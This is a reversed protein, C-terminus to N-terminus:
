NRLKKLDELISEENFTKTELLKLIQRYENFLYDRVAEQMAAISTNVKKTVQSVLRYLNKEVENPIKKQFFRGFFKKWFFMPFLWWLLDINSDFTWSVAIDPEKIEPPTIQWLFEPLAQHLVPEIRQNIRERFLLVQREFHKQPLGILNDIEKQADSFNEKLVLNLTEQLWQEFQRTCKYLNGKWQGYEESFKQTIIKILQERKPEIMIKTLQERTHTKYEKAIIGLEQHIQQLFEKESNLEKKLQEIVAQEQRKSELLLLLYSQLTANLKVEKYAILENINKQKKTLLPFFLQESITNLYSVTNEKTSFFYLPFERNFEQKSVERLYSTMEKKEIDSLLDVKTLLLFIKDTYTLIERLNQIDQASFPQQPNIAYIVFASEPTWKMTTETNQKFFSGTGPTDILEVEKLNNIKPSFLNIKKVQKCNGPNLKETLYEPIEKVSIEFDKEGSVVIIKLEDAYAIKTIVNTTPLVGVPLINEGIVANLFSSKGAKFGGLVAVSIYKVTTLEKMTSLYPFLTDIGYKEIISEFVEIM